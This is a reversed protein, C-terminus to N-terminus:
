RRARGGEAVRPGTTMLLLAIPVSAATVPHRTGDAHLLVGLLATGAALAGLYGYIRAFAGIATGHDGVIGLRAVVRPMVAATSAGFALTVAAVAFSNGVDVVVGLVVWGIAAGVWYPSTPVTTATRTM